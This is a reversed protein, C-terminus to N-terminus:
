EHTLFLRFPMSHKSIEQLPMGSAKMFTLDKKMVHAVAMLMM